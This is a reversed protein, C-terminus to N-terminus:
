TPDAEGEGTGGSRAPDTSDAPDTTEVPETPNTSPDTGAPVDPEDPEPSTPNGPAAPEPDPAPVNWPNEPDPDTPDWGRCDPNGSIQPASPKGLPGPDSSDYIEVEYINSMNDYIWKADILQLRICGHSCVTGLRDFEWWQLSDKEGYASYPVSHFLYNGRIQTCYHGYVNGVLDLWERRWQTLRFRGRPTSEGGSCVMARYPATYAGSDDRTYVTVTSAQLNVRVYYPKDGYVAGSSARGSTNASPETEPEQTPEPEPEPEPAAPAEPQIPEQGEIQQPQVSEKGKGCGVPLALLCILTLLLVLMRSKRNM